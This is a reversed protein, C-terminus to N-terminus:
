RRRRHRRGRVSAGAPRQDARRQDVAMRATRGFEDVFLLSSRPQYPQFDGLLPHESVMLVGESIRVRYGSLEVGQDNKTGEPALVIIGDEQVNADVVFHADDATTNGEANYGSTPDPILQGSQTFLQWDGVLMVLQDVFEPKHVYAM